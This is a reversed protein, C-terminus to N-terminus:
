ANSVSVKAQDLEAKAQDLAREFPRPDITFLLDGEKVDQGDTFEVETLYGSIRARVEVSEVADFRGTFEDWEIVKRAIPQSVTLEPATAKATVKKAGGFGSFASHITGAVDEFGFEVSRGRLPGVVAHGGRGSSRPDHCRLQSADVSEFYRRSAQEVSTLLAKRRSGRWNIRAFTFGGGGPLAVVHFGTNIARPCRAAGSLM